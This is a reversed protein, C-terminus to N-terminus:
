IAPKKLSIGGNREHFLVNMRMTEENVFAFYELNNEDMKELAEGITTITMPYIAVSIAEIDNKDSDVKVVHEEYQGRENLPSIISYNGDPRGFAVSYKRENMRHYMLFRFRHARLQLVAELDDMPKAPAEYVSILMEDSSKASSALPIAGYQLDGELHRNEFKNHHKEIQLGISDIATDIAAYLDKNEKRLHFVAADGRITIEFIQNQRQLSFRVDVGEIHSLRGYLKKVKEETYDKIAQTPELNKFYYSINM